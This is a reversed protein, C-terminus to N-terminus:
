QTERDDRARPYGRRVARRPTRRAALCTTGHSQSSSDPVPGMLSCVPVGTDDEGQWALSIEPRRDAAPSPDRHEVEAVHIWRGVPAGGAAPISWCLKLM